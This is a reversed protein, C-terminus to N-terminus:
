YVMNQHATTDPATGKLPNFSICFDLIKIVREHLILFKDRGLILEKLAMSKKERLIILVQPRVLLWTKLSGNTRLVSWVPPRFNLAQKCPTPSGPRTPSTEKTKLSQPVCFLLFRGWKVPTRWEMYVPGLDINFVARNLVISM